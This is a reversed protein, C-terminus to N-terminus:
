QAPESAKEFRLKSLTSDLPKTSATFMAENRSTPCTTRTDKAVCLLNSPFQDTPEDYDEKKIWDKIDETKTENKAENMSPLSLSSAEKQHSLKLLCEVNISVKHESKLHM